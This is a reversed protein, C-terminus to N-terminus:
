LDEYLPTGLDLIISRVSLSYVKSYVCVIVCVARIRMAIDNDMGRESM